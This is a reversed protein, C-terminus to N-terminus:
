ETYSLCSHNIIEPCLAALLLLDPIKLSSQSCSYKLTGAGSAKWVQSLLWIKLHKNCHIKLRVQKGSCKITSADLHNATRSKVAPCESGTPFWFIGPCPTYYDQWVESCRHWPLVATPCSPALLAGPIGLHAVKGWTYTRCTYGARGPVASAGRAPVSQSQSPNLQLIRRTFHLLKPTPPLLCEIVASIIDTVHLFTTSTVKQRSNSPNTATWMHKGLLCRHIPDKPQQAFM